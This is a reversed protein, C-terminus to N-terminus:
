RKDNIDKRSATAEALEGDNTRLMKDLKNIRSRERRWFQTDPRFETIKEGSVIADFYLKRIRFVLSRVM